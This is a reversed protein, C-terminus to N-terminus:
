GISEIKSIIGRDIIVNLRMRGESDRIDRIRKLTEGDIKIPRIETVKEDYDDFYVNNVLIFTDAEKRTKGLLIDTSLRQPVSQVSQSSGM